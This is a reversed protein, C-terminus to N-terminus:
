HIHNFEWIYHSHRPYPRGYEDNGISPHNGWIPLSLAILLIVVLLVNILLEFKKGNKKLVLIKRVALWLFLAVFIYAFPGYVINGAFYILVVILTLFWYESIIRAM